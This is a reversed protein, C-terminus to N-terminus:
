YVTWAPPFDAPLARWVSGNHTLYRIADVINRMCWRAPRGGRGAPWAPAPLLPECVPWEAQSMDSPYRRARTSRSIGGPCCRCAVAPELAAARPCAPRGPGPARWRDPAAPIGGHGPQGHTSAGPTSAAAATAGRAAPSRRAAPAWRPPSRNAQSPTTTAACPTASAPPVAACRWSSAAPPADNRHSGTEPQGATQRDGPPAQQEGVGGPLQGPPEDRQGAPDAAHFAAHEAGDGDGEGARRRDRRSRRDDHVPHGPAPGDAGGPGATAAARARRKGPRGPAPRTGGAPRAAATVTEPLGAAGYHGKGGGFIGGRLGVIPHRRALTRTWLTGPSQM